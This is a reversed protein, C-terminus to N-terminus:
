NFVVPRMLRQQQQQSSQTENEKVLEKCRVSFRRRSWLGCHRDLGFDFGLGNNDTLWSVMGVARGVRQKGTELLPV